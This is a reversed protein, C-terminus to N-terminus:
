IGRRVTAAVPSGTRLERLALRMISVGASLALTAIAGGVLLDPWATATAFVGGAAALVALNGIADNRSCLWVSRMNLDDGRHWFLIAASALNAALALGGVGGMVAADPLTPDFGRAIAESLVWVGFLAMGLGKALAASAKWRLSKALVYLTLGYTASDALFDLADALLATSDAFWGAVVEVFFMAANIALVIWLARRQRALLAADADGDLVPPPCCQSM